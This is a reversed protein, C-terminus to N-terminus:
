SAEQRYEAWTSDTESVRVAYPCGDPGTINKDALWGALHAALLESTPNVDLVRNLVQRHLTSRIHDILDGPIPLLGGLTGPLTVVYAHGHRRGCKHGAALGELWHTARFHVAAPETPTVIRGSLLRVGALRGRAAQPLYTSACDLVHRRIDEDSVDTLVGSLDHHDLTRDIHEQLATLDGFDTVFGTDTLQDASLLVEATLSDGDEVGDVTRTAEFRMRKGITFM